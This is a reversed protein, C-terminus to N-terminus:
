ANDGQQGDPDEIDMKYLELAPPFDCKPGHQDRNRNKGIHDPNHGDHDKDVIRSVPDQICGKM